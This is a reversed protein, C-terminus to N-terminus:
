SLGDVEAIREQRNRLLGGLRRRPHPGAGPRIEDAQRDANDIRLLLRYEARSTFLRYPEDVGTSVLDDM